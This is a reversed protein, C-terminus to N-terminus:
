ILILLIHAAKALTQMRQASETVYLGVVIVVHHL